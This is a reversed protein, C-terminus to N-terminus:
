QFGHNHPKVLALLMLVAIATKCRHKELHQSTITETWSSIWLLVDSRFYGMIALRREDGGARFVSPAALCKQLSEWLGRWFWSVCKLLAIYCMVDFWAHRICMRQQVILGVLNNWTIIFLIQEKYYKIQMYFCARLYSFEEVSTLTITLTLCTGTQRSRTM